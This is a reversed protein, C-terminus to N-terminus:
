CQRGTIRQLHQKSLGNSPRQVRRASSHMAGGIRNHDAAFTLGRHHLVRPPEARCGGAITRALRHLPLAPCFPPRLGLLTEARMHVQFTTQTTKPYKTAVDIKLEAPRSLTGCSPLPVATATGPCSWARWARQALRAHEVDAGMARWRM